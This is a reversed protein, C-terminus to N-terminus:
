LYHGSKKRKTALYLENHTNSPFKHSVREVVKIGSREMGEIKEPNNTMLRVSDFGMHKLMEAAPRFIREDADFGLRENSDITDFGDGQLKYARLKNILGIGRGEQALYLLVGSGQDSIAKIAGRLQEGCDCKLSGVLDGTFCESHLRALVPEHRKPDGIIIALHEIGGDLPRFAQIKTNESAQLPVNAIAVPKLQRAAQDDYGFIEDVSVALLDAEAKLTEVKAPDLDAILVSPLLRGLKALKIGAKATNPAMEKIRNFPGRFPQDLDHTADALSRLLEPKMWDEISLLITDDGTPMIHLVNARHATLALRAPTGALSELHQLAGAFVTETSLILAASENDTIIVCLARRLDALARDVNRLSKSADPLAAPNTM